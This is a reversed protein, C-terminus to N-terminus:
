GLLACSCSMVELYVPRVCAAQAFSASSWEYLGAGSVAEEFFASRRVVHGPYRAELFRLATQLLCGRETAKSAMVDGAHM